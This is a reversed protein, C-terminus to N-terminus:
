CKVLLSPFPSLSFGIYSCATIESFFISAGVLLYKSATPDSESLFRLSQPAPNGVPPLSPSAGAYRTSARRWRLAQRLGPRLARREGLGGGGGGSPIPLGVLSPLSLSRSIPFLLPPSASRPCFGLMGGEATALCHYRTVNEGDLGDV